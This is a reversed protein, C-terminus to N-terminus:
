GSMSITAITAFLLELKQTAIDILGPATYFPRPRPDRTGPRPDPFYRQKPARHREM